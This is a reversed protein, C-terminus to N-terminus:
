NKIKFEIRRNQARGERTENSAVPQNPGYGQANFNAVNVGLGSLHDLVAQARKKSLIMNFDINGVSDTHGAVEFSADPCRKITGALNDLLEYSNPKIEAKGSQFNIKATDLLNNMLKQCEAFAILEPNTVSLNNNIKGSFLSKALEGISQKNMNTKVEGAITLQDDNISLGSGNGLKTLLGFLGKITGFKAVKDSLTLKNVVSDVGFEQNAESVVRNMSDQNNVTGTLVVKNSEWMANLTPSQLEIPTPNDIEGHFEVIRVGDGQLALEKVQDIAEPSPASGSLLVDRGRSYTTLDAWEVNQSKLSQSANSAVDQEVARWKTLGFLLLLLLPFVIFPWWGACCFSCRKM